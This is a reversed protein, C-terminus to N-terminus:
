NNEDKKGTVSNTLFSQALKRDVGVGVLQAVCTEYLLKHAQEKTIKAAGAVIMAVLGMTFMELTLMLKEVEEACCKLQKCIEEVITKDTKGGLISQLGGGDGIRSTFEASLMYAVLKPMDIAVDLWTLGIHGFSLIASNCDNRMKDNLLRSAYLALQTRFGEMDGFQWMIPQTSCGLRKSLSKINLAEYGDCIIIDLGAQLINEKGIRATRGM